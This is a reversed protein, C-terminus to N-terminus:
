SWVWTISKNPSSPLQDKALSMVKALLDNTLSVSQRIAIKADAKQVNLDLRHQHSTRLLM